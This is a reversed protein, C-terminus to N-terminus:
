LFQSNDLHFNMISGSLHTWSSCILHFCALFWIKRRWCIKGKKCMLTVFLATLFSFLTEISNDDPGGVSNWSHLSAISFYFYYKFTLLVYLCCEADTLIVLSKFPLLSLSCSECSMTISVRLKQCLFTRKCKVPRM